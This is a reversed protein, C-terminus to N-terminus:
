LLKGEVTKINAWWIGFQVNHHRRTCAKIVGQAERNFHIVNTM